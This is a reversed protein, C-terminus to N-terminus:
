LSFAQKKEGYREQMVRLKGEREKGTGSATAGGPSCLPIVWVGVAVGVSMVSNLGLLGLSELKVAICGIIGWSL